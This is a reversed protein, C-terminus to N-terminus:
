ASSADTVEKPKSLEATVPSIEGQDAGGLLGKLKTLLSPRRDYEYPFLRYALLQLCQDTCFGVIGILIIVPYVRDFNRYTGQTDIVETLGSKVGILEAIVLWTWAWGLLIRLDAFLKPLIGPLIVKILLARGKAGLTRAAEILSQDLLRTTNAVVLVLQFITGIFVLAIKPADHAGFIVVLLTAFVPAPMYRFFDIFPETLRSFLDYTGALVGLPVGVIAAYLFGLFVIKISALLREHMWPKGEGPDSTFMEWGSYVVEHPSPVYEPNVRRGEPMLRLLPLTPLEGVDFTETHGAILSWNDQIIALNEKSLAVETSVRDGKALGKWTEFVARDYAEFQETAASDPLPEAWGNAVAIPGMQRMVVLNARRLTAEREARAKAERMKALAGTPLSPNIAADAGHGLAGESREEETKEWEERAQANMTGLRERIEDFYEVSVKDGAQFITTAEGSEIKVATSLQMDPHWIWPVYSVLSWLGIPILFSLFLLLRRRGPSLEQRIAFWAQGPKKKTRNDAAPPNPSAQGSM